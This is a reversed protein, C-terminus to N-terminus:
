SKHYGSAPTYGYGKAQWVVGVKNSLCECNAFLVNLSEYKLLVLVWDFGHFVQKSYM